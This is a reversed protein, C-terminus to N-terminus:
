KVGYVMELVKDAYREGILLQGARGFHPDSEGKEKRKVNPRAECDPAAVLLAVVLLLIRTFNRM